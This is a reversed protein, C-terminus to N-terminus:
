VLHGGLEVAAGAHREVPRCWGLFERFEEALLGAGFGCLADMAAVARGGPEGGCRRVSWSHFLGVTASVAQPRLATRTLDDSVPDIQCNRCREYDVHGGFDGTHDPALVRLYM